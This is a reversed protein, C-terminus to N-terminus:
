AEAWEYTQADGFLGDSLGRLKKGRMLSTVAQGHVNEGSVATWVAKSEPEHIRTERIAGGSKLYSELQEKTRIVERDERHTQTRFVL